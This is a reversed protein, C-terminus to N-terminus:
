SSGFLNDIQAGVSERPVQVESGGNKADTSWFPIETMSLSKKPKDQRRVRRVM